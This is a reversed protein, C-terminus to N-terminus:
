DVGHTIRSSPTNKHAVRKTRPSARRSQPSCGKLSSAAEPPAYNVWTIGARAPVDSQGWLVWWDRECHGLMTAINRVVIRPVGEKFNHYACWSRIQAEAPKEICVVAAFLGLIFLSLRM